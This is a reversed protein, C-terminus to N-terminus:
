FLKEVSQLIGKILTRKFWFYITRTTYKRTINRLRTIITEVHLVKRISEKRWQTTM